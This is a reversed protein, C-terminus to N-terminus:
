KLKLFKELSHEFSRPSLVKSLKAANPLDIVISEMANDANKVFYAKSYIIGSHIGLEDKERKLALANEEDLYGVPMGLVLIKHSAPNERNTFDHVIICDIIWPNEHSKNMLIRVNDQLKDPVNISQLSAGGTWVYFINGSGIHKKRYRFFLQYIIISACIAVMLFGIGILMYAGM